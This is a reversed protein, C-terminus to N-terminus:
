IHRYLNDRSSRVTNETLSPLETMLILVCLFFPEWGIYSGVNNSMSAIRVHWLPTMPVLSLVALLTARLMPIGLLFIGYFVAFAKGYGSGDNVAVVCDIISYLTETAGVQM